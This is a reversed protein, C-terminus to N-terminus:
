PTCLIAQKTWFPRGRRRPEMTIRSITGLCLALISCRMLTTPNRELSKRFAAASEQPKGLKKQLKDGYRHDCGRQAPDIQLSKQYYEIAKEHDGLDFYDNGLQTLCVADNPRAALMKELGAIRTKTAAQANGGEATEM